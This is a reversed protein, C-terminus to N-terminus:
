THLAALACLHTIDDIKNNLIIHYHRIRISKHYYHVSFLILISTKSDHLSLILLFVNTVGGSVIVRYHIHVM